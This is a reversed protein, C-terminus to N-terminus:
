SNKVFKNCNFRTASTVPAATERLKPNLSLCDSNLNRRRSQAFHIPPRLADM